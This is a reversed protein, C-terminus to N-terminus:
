TSHEAAAMGEPHLLAKMQYASQPAAQLQQLRAQTLHQALLRSLQM